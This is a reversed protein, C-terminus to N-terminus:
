DTSRNPGLDAGDDLNTDSGHLVRAVARLGERLQEKSSAANLSIRVAHPPPTRGAAFHEMTRVQVGAQTLTKSFSDAQWPEPLPLYLHPLDDAWRFTCGPLCRRALALREAIRERQLGILHEAVGSDIWHTIIEPMLPAVMWCDARINAAVKDLWQPSAQLYGVRLGPAMVKSFSAILFAQEPVLSALAPLPQAQATAHVTDEMLLLGERRVVAAIAERRAISMTGTTPSHLSPTCYLMKSGYSRAAAALADPLLGEDDMPLGIVQLRMARALAMLGSYSLSETLITDGPRAVTRLVVALAHQAGHTVMVRQWDGGTGFRKLWNAGAIRHHRMGAEAQYDLLPAMRLDSQALQALTDRLAQREDTRIAVNHALDILAATGEREPEPHPIQLNRVYTGDGVRALALDQRELSAYARSVTGPTVGLRKAMVRHPPLKEGPGFQGNVIAQALDDAITQYKPKSAPDPPSPTTMCLRVGYEIPDSQRRYSHRMDPGARLPRGRRHPPVHVM